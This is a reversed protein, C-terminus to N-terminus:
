HDNIFFNVNESTVVDIPLYEMKEPVKNLSLFDFLKRIGRYAQEEPRQGILFKITGAKLHSVNKELLDYGIINLPGTGSSNVYDAIKYSKSGTVFISSIGPNKKLMKGTEKSINEPVPNSILLKIIKGKKKISRSFYSLFGQTRTNLHHVNQLNRVINIILIDKGAPTVMETLQGAVRGSQFIDEGTYSLFETENIYGDLFVFPIKKKDLRDCFDISEAKFIPALIVGDPHLNLVNVTKEQFNKEDLLDFTVQSLEVPFPELENIARKLGLPHKLWFANEETAEPLLSVLHIKRKTRLARAIFDPSYDLDRIIKMIKERTNVAVEGREHLVRDVTGTSVGARAAIDKIRAKKLPM